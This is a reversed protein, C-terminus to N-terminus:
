GASGSGEWIKNLETQWKWYGLGCVFNMVLIMVGPNNADSVGAKNQAEEILAGYKFPLYFGYLFCVLTIILDMTPNLEEDSKGLYAKLENGQTYLFYLPYIGCTVLCLAWVVIPNRTEGNM